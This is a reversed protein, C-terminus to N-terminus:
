MRYIASLGERSIYIIFYYVIFMRIGCRRMINANMLEPSVVHVRTTVRVGKWVLVGGRTRPCGRWTSREAAIREVSVVGAFPSEVTQSLDPGLRQLTVSNADVVDAEACRVCGHNSLRHGVKTSCRRGRDVDCTPHLGIFDRVQNEFKVVLARRTSGSVVDADPNAMRHSERGCVRDEIPGM